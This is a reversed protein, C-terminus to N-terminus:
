NAIAPVRRDGLSDSFVCGLQMRKSFYM